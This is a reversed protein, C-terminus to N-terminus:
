KKGGKWFLIDRWTAEAPGIGTLTAWIGVVNYIPVSATVKQEVHVDNIYVDVTGAAPSYITNIRVTTGVTYSALIKGSQADYLEAPLKHVAIVCSGTQLLGINDGGLNDVTVDGQIQETISVPLLGYQYEALGHGLPIRFIAGNPIPIPVPTPIPDAVPLPVPLPFPIITGGGATKAISTETTPIWGSGIQAQASLSLGCIFVFAAFTRVMYKEAKM